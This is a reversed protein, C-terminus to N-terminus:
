HRDAPAGPVGARRVATVSGDMGAVYCVPSSGGDRSPGMAVPAMVYFGPTTQYSWLLAGDAARMVSLRGTNSCVVLRGDRDTMPVPLRGSPREVDWVVHGDSGHKRVHGDTARSYFSAGDSSPGIASANLKWRSDLAGDVKYAGLEYGRDCVFVRDGMVLPGCDAPAYYRAGKGESSKPGPSKWRLKGDASEVAYLYGDWAGFVVLDGWVVPKSEIAYDAREFTWRSTGDALGFAHLRGGNDGIYVTAGDAEPWGYVPRGVEHKWRPRGDLGLAYVNGDGSGLILLGNAALPTGLIEGQTAFAWRFAGTVEDLARVIGDTGAVIVLGDAVVPGAKIATPFVRRWVVDVDPGVLRFVRSRSELVGADNEAVVTLLHEGPPLNALSLKLTEGATTGAATHRDEGNIRYHLRAAENKAEPRVDGLRVTLEPRTLVAEPGPSAIAFLRTPATTPLPKEFVARWQQPQQERKPRKPDGQHFRYAYRMVGNRISLIAYGANKGFTSGGMVGDIGVIRGHSVGHGHGYMLLVVNYDRLMDILTDTEAPNAFGGDYLPHHLAVIVPTGPEIADLDTKLWARTKADITPVPEQPSASNICAFHVGHRAFSYNEGGHRRRMVDYMAVWTNDHNGPQVYIPCPVGAFADCFVKWTDDIVGYETLDGTVLAFEPAPVAMDLPDIAQPKGAEESLWRITEAGRPAGPPGTRMLHPGLHTDSIHLITFDADTLAAKPPSPNTGQSVPETSPQGCAAVFVCSVVLLIRTINM